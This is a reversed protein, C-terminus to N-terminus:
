YRAAAHPVAAPSPALRQFGFAFAARHLRGARRAAPLGLESMHYNNDVYFKALLLWWQPNQDDAKVAQSVSCRLLDLTTM